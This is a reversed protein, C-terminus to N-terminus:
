QLCFFRFSLLLLWFLAGGKRDGTGMSEPAERAGGQQRPRGEGTFQSGGPLECGRRGANFTSRRQIM